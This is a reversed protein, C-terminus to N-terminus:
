GSARAKEAVSPLDRHERDIERIRDQAREFAWFVEPDFHRGIEARMTELAAEFSMAAKYPRESRLADYVDAVAVIRGVLPIAQRALGNPYGTGDWREHHTQAILSACQILDSSEVWEERLEMRSVFVKMADVPRALLRHGLACHEEIVKREEPTLRGPKLLLSDPVGLKGIDHLPAALLITQCEAKPLGYSEAIAEAFLSVRVVHQGTEVDRCEVASALRLALELRSAELAGTRQRVLEELRRNASELERQVSQLRLVSNVRAILDEDEVPKNLLDAAGLDLARRKYDAEHCGTVVVVPITLGRAALEALLDFGTKGPMAYDTVVADVALTEVKALAEDVSHAFHTTWDPARRRLMRRFGSLLDADDDVFLVASV